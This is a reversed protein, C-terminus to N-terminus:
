ICKVVKPTKESNFIKASPDGKDKKRLIDPALERIVSIVGNAAAKIQSDRSKKLSIVESLIEPPMSWPCRVCIEKM